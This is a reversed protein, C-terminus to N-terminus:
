GRRATTEDATIAITRAEISAITAGWVVLGTAAIMASTTDRPTGTAAARRMAIKVGTVAIKVDIGDTKVGIGDIKGAIGATRAAIGSTKM